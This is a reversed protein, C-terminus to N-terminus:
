ETGHGNEGLTAERDLKEVIAELLWTHRPIRVARQRVANDVQDLINKPMRLVVQREPTAIEDVDNQISGGKNAPPRAGMSGSTSQEALKRKRSATM